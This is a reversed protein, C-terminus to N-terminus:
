RALLSITIPTSYVEEKGPSSYRAVLTIAKSKPRDQNWRLELPYGDGIVTTTRFTNLQAPDFGWVKFPKEIRPNLSSDSRDFMLVELRGRLIPVGHAVGLKSAFVQIGVGELGHSGRLAKSFGFLHIEGVPGTGGTRATQTKPETRESVCGAGASLLLATLLAAVPFRHTATKKM